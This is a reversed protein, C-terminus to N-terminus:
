TGQGAGVVQLWLDAWRAGDVALAVDLTTAPVGYPDHELDGAWARRDVLTQGRTRTGSLEVHV